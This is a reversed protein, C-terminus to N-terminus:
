SLRLFPRVNMFELKAALREAALRETVFFGGLRVLPPDGDPPRGDPEPEAAVM